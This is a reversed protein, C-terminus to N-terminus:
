NMFVSAGEEAGSAYQRFFSFLERGMGIEHNALEIDLSERSLWEQEDVQAQLIGQECDLLVMDGDRIKALQGGMACEPTIHIAAPIKGSAGSMRGDTILAVKFGKDQLIGLVPTLKHLEPMGNARPGQYCVVVVVDGDLEDNAFADQVAQQSTFVKAPAQVVRHEPKVASIKVIARGINGDLVKLGGESDFPNDITRVISDDIKENTSQQWKIGGEELVPEHIYHELGHGMVTLVDNHLLGASLLSAIVLPLGGANHFQNVDAAGNPYVRALLPTITSLEAFDNWDIVIGAARAIAILHIAHNTSGGTAHLGIIANVITKENVVHGIPLYENHTHSHNTDDAITVVRETATETLADRLPTHPNVFASGPIHLGMIEMLMQNSNATGYFTCTGPGHYSKMEAALLEERSIDGKAFAQRIRAKESNPLGSPMPGAPIFITPLHGFSLAGILLGPIIKDCVGLCLAADFVNHSLAIATSMAIVDRSFLSLEMGAQGQTVGDCMAPVGGAFQAVAGVKRAAVKIKDPYDALPQHASLMDNYASVIAINPCSFAKLVRKDQEATAAIAHALNTCSISKRIPGANRAQELNSLYAERGFQSRRQIRSTVKEIVPQM